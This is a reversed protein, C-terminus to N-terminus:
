KFIKIIPKGLKDLKDGIILSKFGSDAALFQLLKLIAYKLAPLREKKLDDEELYKTISQFMNPIKTKTLDINLPMAKLLAAIVFPGTHYGDLELSQLLTDFGKEVYEPFVSVNNIQSDLFKSVVAVAKKKVPIPHFINQIKSTMETFFKPVGEKIITKVVDNQPHNQASPLQLTRQLSIFYDCILGDSRFLGATVSFFKEANNFLYLGGKRIL